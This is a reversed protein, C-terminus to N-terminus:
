YNIEPPIAKPSPRSDVPSLWVRTVLIGKASNDGSIITTIAVTSPGKIDVKMELVAVAFKSSGIMAVRQAVTLVRQSIPPEFNSTRSTVKEQESAIANGTLM